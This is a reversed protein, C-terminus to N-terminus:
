YLCQNFGFKVMNKLERMAHTKSTVDSYITFRLPGMVLRLWTLDEGVKKLVTIRRRVMQNIKNSSEM